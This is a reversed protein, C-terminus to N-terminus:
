SAEPNFPSWTQYEMLRGRNETTYTTWAVGMQRLNSLCGASHAAARAKAIVPLLLSVLVAILGIVVLLETLTFGGRRLQERKM